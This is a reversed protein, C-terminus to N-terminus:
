RGPRGDHAPPSLGGYSYRVSSISVTWLELIRSFYEGTDCTHVTYSSFCVPCKEYYDMRSGGTFMYFSAIYKALIGKPFADSSAM